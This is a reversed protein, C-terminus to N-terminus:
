GAGEGTSCYMTTTVLCDWYTAKSLYYACLKEIWDYQVCANCIYSYILLYQMTASLWQTAVHVFGLIKRM